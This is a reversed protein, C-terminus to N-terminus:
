GAAFCLRWWDVVALEPLARPTADQRHAVVALLPVEIRRQLEVVNTKEALGQPPTTESIVVGAVVLGRRQAAELTLLTHNLTGLSRRAVIVLHMGLAAALDAVTERQTLPCLLGGVGEVLTPVGPNALRQVAETLQGITLRLGWREAAVPPAVAEPFPWPTVQEWDAVGAAEALHRTDDSLWQGASWASQDLTPAEKAAPRVLGTDPISYRPHAGTAVPKAVRVAHGQGLLARVVCVTIFTKGVGTDTGTFFL